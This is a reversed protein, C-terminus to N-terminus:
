RSCVRSLRHSISPTEFHSLELKGSGGGDSYHPKRLHKTAMTLRVVSVAAACRSAVDRRWIIACCLRLFCLCIRARFTVDAYSHGFVVTYMFRVGSACKRLPNTWIEWAPHPYLTTTYLGFETRPGTRCVRCAYQTASFCYLCEIIQISQLASTQCRARQRAMRYHSLVHEHRGEDDRWGDGCVPAVPASAFLVTHTHALSRM